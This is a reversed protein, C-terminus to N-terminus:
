SGGGEQQCFGNEKKKKQKSIEEEIERSIKKRRTCGWRQGHIQTPCTCTDTCSLIRGDSGRPAWHSYFYTEFGERIYFYMACGTTANSSKIKGFFASWVNLKFSKYHRQTPKRSSSLNQFKLSWHSSQEKLPDAWARLELLLKLHCWFWPGTPNDPAEKRSCKYQHIENKIFFYFHSSDSCTSEARSQGKFNRAHGRAFLKTRIVSIIFCHQHTGNRVGVICRGLPSSISLRPKIRICRSPARYDLPEAESSGWGGFGICFRDNFLWQLELRAATAPSGSKGRQIRGKIGWANRSVSWVAFLNKFQERAVEVLLFMFTLFPNLDAVALSKSQFM